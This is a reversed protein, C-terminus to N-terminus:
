VVLGLSGRPAPDFGEVDEAMRPGEVRGEGPLVWTARTMAPLAHEARRVARRCGAIDLVQVQRAAEEFTLDRQTKDEAMVATECHSEDHEAPVIGVVM